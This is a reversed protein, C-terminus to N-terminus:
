MEPQSPSFQSQPPAPTASRGRAQLRRRLAEKLDKRTRVAMRDPDNVLRQAWALVERAESASMKPHNWVLHYLDFNSLDQENILPEMEKYLRTRHFPTLLTLSCVFVGEAARRRVDAEMEDITDDEYGIMFTGIARRGYHNLEAITERIVRVDDRKHVDTRHKPNFSEIGITAGDMGRDTLEGIRGHILDSRTLCDWSLGRQALADIVLNGLNNQLLFSEDYIVVHAVKREQYADLAEQLESM